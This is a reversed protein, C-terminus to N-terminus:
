PVPKVGYGAAGLGLGAAQDREGDKAWILLVPATGGEGRLRELVRYGALGPLMIDLRVVDFAGTRALNLATHGEAAVTVDMGEAGLGRRLAKRVGVEDDVVLVRPEVHTLM